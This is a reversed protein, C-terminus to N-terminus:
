QRKEMFPSFMRMQKSLIEVDDKRAFKQFEDSAVSFFSTLREIASKITGIEKKIETMEQGSKERLDILNKGILLLQNKMMRQKEELDRLKMNQDPMYSQYNTQDPAM